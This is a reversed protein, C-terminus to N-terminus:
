EKLFGIRQTDSGNKILVYYVGNQWAHVDINRTTNGTISMGDKWMIKGTFSVIKLNQLSTTKASSLQLLLKDKVPNPISFGAFYKRSNYNAKCKRAIRRLDHNVTGAQEAATEAGTSVTAILNTVAVTQEVLDATDTAAGGQRTNGCIKGRFQIKAFIYM